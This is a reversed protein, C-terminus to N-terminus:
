SVVEDEEADTTWSVWGRRIAHLLRDILAYDAESLRDSLLFTRLQLRDALTLKGNKWVQFFFDSLSPLSPFWTNM